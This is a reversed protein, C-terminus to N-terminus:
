SMAAIRDSQVEWDFCPKPLLWFLIPRTVWIVLLFLIILFTRLRQKM